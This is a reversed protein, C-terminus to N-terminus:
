PQDTDRKARARALALKTIAMVASMAALIVLPGRVGYRVLLAISGACILFNAIVVVLEYRSLRLSAKRVM